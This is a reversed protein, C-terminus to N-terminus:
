KIKKKDENLNSSWNRHYEKSKGNEEISKNSYM